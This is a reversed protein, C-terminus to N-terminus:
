FATSGGEEPEARQDRVRVALLVIDDEAPTDHVGGAIKVLLDPLPLDMGTILLEAALDTAHDLSLGRRETLGDTHLLLVSGEPLSRVLDCRNPTDLGPYLMVDHGDLMQIGDDPDLLLPAPHGANSWTLRWGDPGPDLRAHVVTGGTEVPLVACARDLAGLAASPGQDIHDLTAQRLMSRMQGMLSAARIDHGIIDGVTVMVPRLGGPEASPLHYADYWDGGVMEGDNAPLYLAALELGPPAPLETLMAAQLQRAASTRQEIYKARELAQGIYGAVATFEAQETVTPQHPERWGVALVGLPGEQSGFVPLCLASSLKLAHFAAAAEPAYGSMAERDPVLVPRRRSLARASPSAARLPIREPDAARSYAVGPVGAGPMRRLGEEDAVLLEVHAPGADISFLTRLRERIEAETACRAMAQSARLLLEAHDWGARAQRWARRAADSSEEALTHAREVSLKAHRIRETAIRLRLEAGCAAALDALDALQARTWKRPRHDIACLSGLVNGEQDTLPMGAYAAVGVGNAQPPDSERPDKRADRIILPNGTIVVHQCFSHTLSTERVDLGVMGPFVQRDSEVLSVLAVPVKLLRSVLRAFRDMDTDATASLGAM